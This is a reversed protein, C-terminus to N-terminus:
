RLEDLKALIKVIDRENGSAAPSGTMLKAGHGARLLWSNIAKKVEEPFHTTIKLKVQREQGKKAFAKQVKLLPVMQMAEDVELEEFKNKAEKIIKQEQEPLTGPHEVIENFLQQMLVLQPGGLDHDKGKEKVTALYTAYRARLPRVAGHSAKMKFVVMNCSAQLERVARHLGVTGRSVFMLLQFTLKDKLGKDAKDAKLLKDLGTSFEDMDVEETEGAKEEKQVKAPKPVSSSWHPM